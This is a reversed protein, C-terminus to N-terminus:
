RIVRRPRETLERTEDEYGPQIQPQTQQGPAKERPKLHDAMDPRHGAGPSHPDNYRIYTPPPRHRQHNRHLHRICPIKIGSLAAVVALLILSEPARPQSPKGGPKTNPHSGRWIENIVKCPVVLNALPFFWWMMGSSPSYNQDENGLPQLNMSCRVQWRLFMVTAVIFIAIGVERIPFLVFIVEGIILALTAWIAARKPSKYERRPWTKQGKQNSGPTMTGAPSRQSTM